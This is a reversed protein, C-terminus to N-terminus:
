TRLKDLEPKLQEMVRYLGDVTQPQVRGWTQLQDLADDLKTHAMVLILKVDQPVELPAPSELGSAMTKLYAVDEDSLNFWEGRVHKNIFRQHINHELISTSDSSITCILDLQGPNGTQLSSFRAQPNKAKGIKYMGTSAHILYVYGSDM